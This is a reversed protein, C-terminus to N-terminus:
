HITPFTCSWSQLRSSCALFDCFTLALVKEIPVIKPPFFLLALKMQNGLLYPAFYNCWNIKEYDVSIYTQFLCIVLTSKVVRSEYKVVRTSTKVYKLLFFCMKVFRISHVSCLIITKFGVLLYWIIRCHWLKLFIRISM